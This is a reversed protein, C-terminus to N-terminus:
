VRKTGPLPRSACASLVAASISQFTPSARLPLGLPGRMRTRGQWPAQATGVPCGTGTQGAWGAGTGRPCVSRWCCRRSWAGGNQSGELGHSGATPSAQGVDSDLPKQCYLLDRGGGERRQLLGLGGHPLCSAHSLTSTPHSGPTALNWARPRRGRGGLESPDRGLGAVRNEPSVSRGRGLIWPWGTRRSAWTMQVLSQAGSPLQPRIAGGHGRAEAGGRGGASAATGWLRRGARAEPGRCAGQTAEGVQASVGM